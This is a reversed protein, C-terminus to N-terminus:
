LRTLANSATIYHLMSNDNVIINKVNPAQLNVLFQNNCILTDVEEEFVFTGIVVDTSEIEVTGNERKM